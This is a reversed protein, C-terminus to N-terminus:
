TRHLDGRPFLAPVPTYIRNRYRAGLDRAGVAGCLIPDLYLNRINGFPSDAAERDVEGGRAPTAGSACNARVSMVSAGTAMTNYLVQLRGLFFRFDGAAMANLMAPVAVVTRAGTLDGQLGAALGAGAVKMPQQSGGTAPGTNLSIPKENL